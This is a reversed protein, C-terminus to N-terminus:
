GMKEVHEKFIGMMFLTYDGIHQYMEMEKFLSVDLVTVDKSIKSIHEQNM